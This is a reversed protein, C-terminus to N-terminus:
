INIAKKPKWLFSGIAVVVIIGTLIFVWINARRSQAEIVYNAPIMRYATLKWVLTDGHIVANGSQIVKGPMVLKYTFSGSFYKVFAQNNFDNEYKKMPSNETQWLSTFAKTKFYNNLNKEMNFDPSNKPGSNFITDKMLELRKKSVPKDTLQDYNNILIKYEANWSNQAFWKNYNDEIEGIYERSEVGNMGKLIDPKGTFWFQAEERSMYEEIPIDFNLKIKPYTERYTFYTYFWRFKKQLSYNVKLNSWEHSRKLKFQNALEGVSKYNHRAFVLLDASTNETIGRKQPEKNQKIDKMISDWVLKSVPFDSRLKSNKYRWTIKWSSDIEVPFPNLKAATDGALFQPDGCATFERYCSGDPNIVTLMDSPQKCSVVFLIAVYFLLKTTSNM